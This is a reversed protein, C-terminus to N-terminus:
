KGCCGCRKVNGSITYLLSGIGEKMQFINAMRIFTFHCKMHKIQMERLILSASYKKMSRHSQGERRQMFTQELEKNIKLQINNYSQLQM